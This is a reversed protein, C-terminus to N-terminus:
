REYREDRPEKNEVGQELKAIRDERFKVIM